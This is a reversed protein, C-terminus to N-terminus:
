SCRGLKLFAYALLASEVVLLLFVIPLAAEYWRLQQRQGETCGPAHQWPLRGPERCHPCYVGLAGSDPLDLSVVFAM